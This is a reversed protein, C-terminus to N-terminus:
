YVNVYNLPDVRNASSSGGVRVEFHLHPGTSIGTNGSVAIQQGKSVTQGVSVKFQSLHAYCTYLAGRGSHWIMIFNGYGSVYQAMIVKGSEAAYVPKYSVGIDIAGHNSSAGATPSKRPGFYSTIYKYQAYGTSLPWGLSGPVYSGTGGQPKSGSNMSSLIRDIEQNAAQIAKRFDDITKQKKKEEETLNAIIKNKQGQKEKLETNKAEKQSKVSDVEAKQRELEAKADELEQKESAVKNILKTDADAIKELADYSALMEMYSSSGLLVDLYKVGGNKYMAVLRKKLLEQKEELDKQKADIEKEKEKISNNLEDLKGQLTIIENNIVDLEDNITELQSKENAIQAKIENQEKLANKQQQELQNQKDKANNLDNQNYAYAAGFFYTSALLIIICLPIIKNKM